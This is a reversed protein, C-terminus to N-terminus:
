YSKKSLLDYHKQREAFRLRDSDDFIDKCYCCQVGKIYSSKDRDVLSLPMGCAYCLAHEGPVLDHNLSVRQDFVFCEGEWLSKAKPVEELYRLIGGKLQHVDEYGQSKLYSSAKECRIGGTCFMSIRKYNNDAILKDLNEKAWFPFERFSNTNPNIAGYFSGISVEYKNRTDIVLTQPDELYSNWESPDVYDRSFINPDIGEIGMTVIESKRRVKLKRFAQKESYSFKVELVGEKINQNLIRICKQVGEVSGCITGNVGESALLITGKIEYKNGASVLKELLISLLKDTIPTFLYLAALKYKAKVILAENMKM